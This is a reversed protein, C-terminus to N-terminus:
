NVISCEFCLWRKWKQVNPVRKNPVRVWVLNLCDCNKLNFNQSLWESLFLFTPSPNTSNERWYFQLTNLLNFKKTHTNWYYYNAKIKSARQNLIKREPLDRNKFAMELEPQSLWKKVQVVNGRLISLCTYKWFVYFNPRKLFGWISKFRALKNTLSVLTPFKKYFLFLKETWPSVAKTWCRAIIKMCDKCM